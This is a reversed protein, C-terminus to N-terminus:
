KNIKVRLEQKNEINPFIEGSQIPGKPNNLELALYSYSMYHFYRTLMKEDPLGDFYIVSCLKESNNPHDINLLSSITNIPYTKDKNVLQKDELNLYKSINSKLDAIQKNNKYNGLLILSNNKIIDATLQSSEYVEFNYESEKLKDVFKIATNYDSNSKDPIVVIPKSSLTRNFNYPKEWAFVKRLNEYDPDVQIESCDAPMDFTFTNITDKIEVLEKKNGSVNVFVIPLKTQIPNNVQISITVKNSDDNKEFNIEQIKYEPLDKNALWKNFISRIQYPNKDQKARMDFESTLNMWYARKGKNKTAFSKLAEFFPEKGMLKMIEIFIFAGKQYGIAADFIDKQYKFEKVPYNKEAPLADLEILAKKRWNILESEKNKLANYYYNSSFTTLAECWNGKEYDVFVSNGWWNHVFEHAISGPSLVVWPMKLLRGSLLTYGPMGFGTAFFNEVVSFDEFPYEGFLGTYLDYYEKISKTFTESNPLDQYTFLNVTFKDFKESVKKLRGGVLTLDDIQFDSKIEYTTKNNQSMSGKIFSTVLTFESPITIKCDFNAMDKDTKPYFASGPLYIGENEKDSIIGISNAHRQVLTTENPKNYVTGEYYITLENTEKIGEEAGYIRYEFTPNDFVIRNYNDNLKEIKYEMRVNSYEINTIKLTNLLDVSGTKLIPNKFIIKDMGKISSTAPEIELEINHNIIFNEGFHSMSGMEMKPEERILEPVFLVYDALNAFEAKNSIESKEKYYIPTIVVPKADPLRDTIKQATGLYSNSHFDGNLHYIIKNKNEEAYRVISEAMTEDKIVQSGYYLYLTNQENPVYESMKEASGIMTEFFKDMYKDARIMMSSAILEKEDDPLNNLGTMGERVYQGAYKRPINAAIVRLQNDKAFDVMPAYFKQYDPWPRSGKLFEEKTIAGDLYENVKNQVDREFMEMSLVLNDNEDYIAKFLEYQVHHILSDDHFEGFLIFRQESLKEALDELSIEKGSKTDIFQYQSFSFEFSMIM